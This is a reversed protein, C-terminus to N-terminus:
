EYFHLTMAGPNFGASYSYPKGKPVWMWDGTKLEVGDHIISGSLVIRFLNRKHSHKPVVAGPEAVTLFVFAGGDTLVPLQWQKFGPPMDTRLLEHRVEHMGKDRSTSVRGTVNVGHKKLADRVRKAGIAGEIVSDNPKWGAPRRPKTPSM